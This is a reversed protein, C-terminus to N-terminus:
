ENYIIYGDTYAFGYSNSKSDKMNMGLICIKWISTYFIVLVVVVIVVGEEFLICFWMCNLMFVKINNLKTQQSLQIKKVKMEFNWGRKKQWIKLWGKKMKYYLVCLIFANVISYRIFYSIFWCCFLIFFFYSYSILLKERELPNSKEKIKYKRLFIEYWSVFDFYIHCYFFIIFFRFIYSLLRLKLYFM